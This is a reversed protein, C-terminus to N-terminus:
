PVLAALAAPTDVDPPVPMALEVYRVRLPDGAIVRRAGGDGRTAILEAFMSADFLVPHGRVGNYSPAVIPARAERYAALVAAYAASPVLPQDGLVILAAEAGPALAAIGAALSTSMGERYRLNEVFRVPLSKLAARVAAADAGTVVLTEDVGSAAAREAAHRVVPRGDFPALLKQEGFRKSEGAALVIAVIM